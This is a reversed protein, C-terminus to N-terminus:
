LGCARPPRPPAARERRALGRGERPRRARLLAAARPAARRAELRAHSGPPAELSGRLDLASGPRLPLHPLGRAGARRDDERGHPLRPALAARFLVRDREARSALLAAEERASRARARAPARVRGLDRDRVAGHDRARLRARAG